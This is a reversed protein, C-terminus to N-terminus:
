PKSNKLFSLFLAQSPSSGNTAAQKIATRLEIEAKIRGSYYYKYADSSANLIQTEFEEQDVDIVIAIEDSSFFLGAMTEIEKCQEETLNM